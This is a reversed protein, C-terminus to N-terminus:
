RTIGCIAESMRAVFRRFGGHGFRKGGDGDGFLEGFADKGDIGRPQRRRHPRLALVEGDVDDAEAEGAAVFVIHLRREGAAVVVTGAGHDAMGAGQAGGARRQHVAGGNVALIEVVGELAARHMGARDDHGGHKRGALAVPGVAGRRKGANRHPDLGHAPEPQDRGLQHVLRAEMRGRHEAGHRRRGADGGREPEVAAADDIGEANGAAHGGADDFVEGLAGPGLAHMRAPRRLRAQARREQRLVAKDPRAGHELPGVAQEVAEGVGGLAIVVREDAVEARTPNRSVSAKM